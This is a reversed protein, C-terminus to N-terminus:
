GPADAGAEAGLRRATLCLFHDPRRGSGWREDILGFGAQELMDRVEGVEFLRFGFRHGPWRRLEEPPEFGLVLRGGRRLVRALEAIAAQPDPWFYISNLSVAKDFTGAAFPLSEASALHVDMGRARRVMAESLDVGSAKAGRAELTRLLAGGGFGIELVREGAGPELVELALRSM